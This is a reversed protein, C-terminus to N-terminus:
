NSTNDIRKEQEEFIDSLLCELARALAKARIPHILRSEGREIRGVANKPLEAKVSLQSCNLGAELRRKKIEEIFPAYM